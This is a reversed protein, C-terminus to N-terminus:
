SVEYARLFKLEIHPGPFLAVLIIASGLTTGIEVSTSIARKTLHHVGATCPYAREVGSAPM